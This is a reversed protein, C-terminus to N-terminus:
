QRNWIKIIVGIFKQSHFTNIINNANMLMIAEKLSIWLNLWLKRPRNITPAHICFIWIFKNILKSTKIICAKFPTNNIWIDIIHIFWSVNNTYLLTWFDNKRNLFLLYKSFLITITFPCCKNFTNANNSSVNWGKKNNLTLINKFIYTM